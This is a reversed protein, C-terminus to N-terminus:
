SALWSKIVPNCIAYVSILFLIGYSILRLHQKSIKKGIWMGPIMALVTVPAYLLGTGVAGTVPEGFKYYLVLLQIPTLGAFLTWLTARSRENTWNHAMVWIVAPPGGMGSMGAMFGSMSMALVCWGKHLKERPTVKWLIQIVLAVLIILGFVQAVADPELLSIRDLVWVGVPLCASAIFIMITLQYWNVHKRLLYAGIVTQFLGCMSLVPIAEYPQMGLFILMPISFMGYGFGAACQLTSGFALILGALIYFQNDM